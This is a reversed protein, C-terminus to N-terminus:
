KNEKNKKYKCISTGIKGQSYEQLGHVRESNKLNKKHIQLVWTGVRRYQIYLLITNAMLQDGMWTIVM